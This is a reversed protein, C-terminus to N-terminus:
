PVAGDTMGYVTTTVWRLTGLVRFRLVVKGEEPEVDFEVDSTLTAREVEGVARKRAIEESPRLM